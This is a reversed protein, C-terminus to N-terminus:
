ARGRTEASRFWFLSGLALAAGLMVIGFPTLMPVVIAEVEYGTLDIVANGGFGSGDDTLTVFAAFGNANPDLHQGVLGGLFPTPFAIAYASFLSLAVEGSGTYGTATPTLQLDDIAFGLHFSDGTAATKELTWQDINVGLPIALEYVGDEETETFLASHPNDFSDGAAVLETATGLAVADGNEDQASAVSLNSLIVGHSGGIDLSAYEANMKLAKLRNVDAVRFGEPLPRHYITTRSNPHVTPTPDQADEGTGGIAPSGGPSIMRIPYAQTSDWPHNLMVPDNLVLLSTTHSIHDKHNRHKAKFNVTLNAIKAPSAGLGLFGGGSSERSFTNNPPDLSTGHRGVEHIGELRIKLRNLGQFFGSLVNYNVEYFTAVDWSDDNGTSPPVTGKQWRIVYKYTKDVQSTDFDFILETGTAVFADVSNLDPITTDTGSPKQFRAAISADLSNPGLPTNSFAPAGLADGDALRYVNLDVIISDGRASGVAALLTCLLLALPLPARAAPREDAPM